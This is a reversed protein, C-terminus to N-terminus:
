ASLDFEKNLTEFVCLGASQRAEWHHMSGPIALTRRGNAAHRSPLKAAGGSRSPPYKPPPWSVTRSLRAMLM